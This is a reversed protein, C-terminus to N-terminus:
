VDPAYNAHLSLVRDLQMRMEYAEEEEDPNREPKSLVAVTNNQLILKNIVKFLLGMEQEAADYGVVAKRLTVFCLTWRPLTPHRLRVAFRLKIYPKDHLGSYAM